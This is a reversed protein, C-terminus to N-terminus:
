PHSVLDKERRDEQREGTQASDSGGGRLREVAALNMARNSVFRPRDERAHGDREAVDVGTELARRDGRVASLVVSQQKRKAPVDDPGFKRSKRRRFVSRQKKGDPLRKHHIDHHPDGANSSLHGNRGRAYM